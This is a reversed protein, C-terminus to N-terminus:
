HGFGCLGIQEGKAWGGRSGQWPTGAPRDRGQRPAWLEGGRLPLIDTPSWGDTGSDSRGRGASQQQEMTLWLPRRCPWVERTRSRYKPWQWTPTWPWCSTEERRYTPLQWAWLATALALIWDPCGVFPPSWHPRWGPAPSLMAHFERCSIM